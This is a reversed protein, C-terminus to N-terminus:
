IERSVHCQRFFFGEKAATMFKTRVNYVIVGLGHRSTIPPTMWLLTSFRTPRVIFRKGEPLGSPFRVVLGRNGARGASHPDPHPSTALQCRCDYNRDAIDDLASM